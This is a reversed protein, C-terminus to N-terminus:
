AAEKAGLADINHHHVTFTIAVVWPNSAWSFRGNERKANLEDWLDHYGWRYHPRSSVQVIAPNSFAPRCGEAEADAESIDQLRQVRVDTVVLTLRSAWRPMHIGPRKRLGEPERTAPFAMGCWGPKGGPNIDRPPVRDYIRGVAWAERVWLRDLASVRPRLWYHFGDEDLPWQRLARQRREDLEAWRWLGSPVWQHLVNLMSPQECFNVWAPPQVHLVRRTQTKRGDLLARVMPGSFLIPRDAM